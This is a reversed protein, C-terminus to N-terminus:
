EAKIPIQCHQNRSMNIECCMALSAPARPTTIARTSIPWYSIPENKCGNEWPERALTGRGAPLRGWAAQPWKEGIEEAM